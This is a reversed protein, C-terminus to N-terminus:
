RLSRRDGLLPAQEGPFADILPWSGQRAGRGTLVGLHGGPATHFEVTAAGTLLAQGRGVADVPALVDDAGAVLLVPQRVGSLEIRRGALDLTGGALDNARFLRHYLQGFSRGPYAAMRAMFRDVAQIQALFERDHLHWTLALPKTLLKDLATLEFAARVLPAPAGGLLRSVATLFHGGTLNALSRLPAVLPVRTFDFPSAIAAISGIPLEPQDAATLLSFLGGLCWGVLQAARGGSCESAARVAAPVVDDIWFECGLSRDAFSITGYDVLYVDRGRALLHEVVSAGRRLDFALAPAALPPVLLVPDGGVPVGEIPQYHRVTRAPGEDVVTSPMPRLDALDGSLLQTANRAAALLPPQPTV